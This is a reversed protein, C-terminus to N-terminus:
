KKECGITGCLRIDNYHAGHGCKVGYENGVSCRVDNKGGVGYNIGPVVVGLLTGAGVGNDDDGGM